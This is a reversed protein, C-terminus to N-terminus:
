VIIFVTDDSRMVKNEDSMREICSDIEAQFLNVSKPNLFNFNLTHSFIVKVSFHACAFRYVKVFDRIRQFYVSNAQGCVKDHFCYAISTHFTIKERKCLM